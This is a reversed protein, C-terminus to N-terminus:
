LVNRPKILGQTYLEEVLSNAADPDLIGVSLILLFSEMDTVFQIFGEHVAITTDETYPGAYETQLYTNKTFPEYAKLCNEDILNELDHDKLLAYLSEKTYDEVCVGIRGFSIQM